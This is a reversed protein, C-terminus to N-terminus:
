SINYNTHIWKAFSSVDTDAGHTAIYALIFEDSFLDILKHIKQRLLTNEARLLRIQTNGM